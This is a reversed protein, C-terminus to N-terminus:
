KTLVRGIPKNAAFLLRIAYVPLIAQWYTIGYEPVWSALTWWVILTAFALFILAALIGTFWQEGTKKPIVIETKIYQEAM